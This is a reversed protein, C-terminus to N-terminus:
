GELFGASAQSASAAVAVAVALLVGFWFCRDRLVLGGLGLVAWAALVEEEELCAASFASSM